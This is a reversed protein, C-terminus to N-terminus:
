WWFDDDDRKKKKPKPKAIKPKAKPISKLDNIKLKASLKTVYQSKTPPIRRTEFFDEEIRGQVKIGYKAALSKLQAVSLIQLKSKVTVKSAKVPDVVNQKKRFTAWSDTGQLKNCRYCLAASNKLTTAGGKSYATKHGVQMEDYDIKKGCAPNECRKKANRYLIQRDRVGLTRKRPADDDIWM